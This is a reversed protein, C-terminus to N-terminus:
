TRLLPTIMPAVPMSREAPKTPPSIILLPSIRELMAPPLAMKPVVPFSMKVSLAPDSIVPFMKPLVPVFVRVKSPPSVVGPPTLLATRPSTSPKAVTVLVPPPTANIPVGSSTPVPKFTNASTILM